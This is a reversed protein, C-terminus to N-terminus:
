VEDGKALNCEPCAVQGNSVITKGGKSWPKIHDAHWNDWECKKGNCRLKVQCIGKDRRFIALRQIQDFERQEDKMELDSIAEFLKRSLFRNRNDLSDFSDTSNSIKENYAIIENDFDPNDPSLESKERRYTEFDIFWKAVEEYRKLIVYKDMLSSILIYLSIVNFRELEPTRSPFMKFLYDLVRKIKKATQSNSDFDKYSTYMNNLDRDKVNCPEGNLELLCMQAAIHDHSFRKNKFAVSKAFFDHKVLEIVFDRMKGPMANRKEQAKLSTGNQLRLFLERVEDDDSDSITVVDLSYGYFDNKIDDPLEDFNKNELEYGNVPELTKSLKYKGEVFEWIARLRQQGDVVEYKDPNSSTKRLYFKPIDYGKIITDMLLQKQATTWVAPRQYDPNTDIRSKMSVTSYLALAKKSIEM